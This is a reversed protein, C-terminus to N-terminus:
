PIYITNYNEDLLSPDIAVARGENTIKLMNDIQRNVIGKKIAESRKEFENM